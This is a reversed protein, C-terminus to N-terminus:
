SEEGNKEDAAQQREYLVVFPLYILTAIAIGGLECVAGMINGGTALFGHLLPPMTWPIQVYMVPCIHLVTMIYGFLITVVPAVIFPILLIPNLVIPIGFVNIEGINFLNPILAIKATSRNEARKGAILIALTLSITMGTGGLGYFGRQFCENIINVPTGEAAVTELNELILGTLIPTLVGSILNDGHLGVGWFLLAILEFVLFGPLSGGVHQLPRQIGAFILDNIYNGSIAVVFLNLLSTILVVLFAPILASFSKAVSAPVQEPMKIQLADVKCIQHYLESALIAILMGTFLGKSGLSDGFIGSITTTVSGDSATVITSTNTVSILAIVSLLGCFVSDRENAKGIESGVLYTVGVAICGITCFNLASFAPNLFSLGMVPPFLAGLGTSSNCIVSTWLVGIAGVITFPLFTQFANKIASLYKNRNAWTGALLLVNTFKNFCLNPMKKM